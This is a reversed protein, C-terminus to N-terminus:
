RPVDAKRTREDVAPLPPFPAHPESQYWYAVSSIDDTGKFMKPGKWGLDHITVKLDKQFHVPDMIHWRYM